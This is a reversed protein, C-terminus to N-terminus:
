CKPLRQCIFWRLVSMRLVMDKYYIRLVASVITGRFKLGLSEKIKSM